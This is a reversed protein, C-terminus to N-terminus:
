FALSRINCVSMQCAQFLELISRYPDSLLICYNSLLKIAFDIPKSHGITLRNRLKESGRPATRHRESDGPAERLEGEHGTEVSKKETLYKDSPTRPQVRSSLDFGSEPYKDSPMHPRAEKAEQKRHAAYAAMRM